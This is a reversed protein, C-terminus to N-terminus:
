EPKTSWFLGTPLPRPDPGEPDAARGTVKALNSQAKFCCGAPPRPIVSRTSHTFSTVVFNEEASRSRCDGLDTSCQLSLLEGGGGAERQQVQSDKAFQTGM